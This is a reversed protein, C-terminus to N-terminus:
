CRVRRLEGYRNRIYCPEATANGIAAGAVGGVLGGVLAGGATGTAAAGVLAGGTGGILAGGVTRDQATQCGALALAAASVLLLKRM